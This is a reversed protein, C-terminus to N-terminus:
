GNGGLRLRLKALLVAKSPLTAKAAGNVPVEEAAVTPEETEEEPAKAARPTVAPM